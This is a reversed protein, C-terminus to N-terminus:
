LVIKVFNGKKEPKKFNDPLIIPLRINTPENTKGLYLADIYQFLMSPLSALSYAALWIVVGRQRRYALIRYFEAVHVALFPRVDDFVLTANKVTNLFESTAKFQQQTLPCIQKCRVKDWLPERAPNIVFIENHVNKLQSIIFTTKGSGNKGVVLFSTM